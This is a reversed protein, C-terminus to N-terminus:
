APIKPGAKHVTAGRVKEPESGGGGGLGTHTLISYVRKCHTLPPPYPNRTKLCIFVQRLARKCTLKKLHRCKANGEIFRIKRRKFM